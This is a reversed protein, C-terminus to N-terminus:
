FNSVQLFYFSVIAECLSNHNKITYLSSLVCLTASKVQHKNCSKAKRMPGCVSSYDFASELLFTYKTKSFFANRYGKLRLLGDIALCRESTEPTIVRWNTEGPIVTILQSSGWVLHFREKSDRSWQRGWREEQRQVGECCPSFKNVM